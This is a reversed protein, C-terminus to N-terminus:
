ECAGGDANRDLGPRYGPQGAYLPVPM